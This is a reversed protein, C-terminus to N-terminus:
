VKQMVADWQGRESWNHRGRKQERKSGYYLSRELWLAVTHQRGKDLCALPTVIRGTDSFLCMLWRPFCGDILWTQWTRWRSAMWDPEGIQFSNHPIAALMLTKDELDSHRWLSFSLPQFDTVTLTPSWLSVDSKTSTPLHPPPTPPRPTQKPKKKQSRSSISSDHRQHALLPFLHTWRFFIIFYWRLLPLEALRGHWLTDAYKSETIQHCTSSSCNNSKWLMCLMLWHLKLQLAAPRSM